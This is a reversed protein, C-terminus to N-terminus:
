ENMMQFEAGMQEAQERFRDIDEKDLLIPIRASAFNGSSGIKITELWAATEQPDVPMNPDEAGMQAMQQVQAQAMMQLQQLFQGGLQAQQEDPYALHWELMPQEGPMLLFGMGRTTALPGAMMAMGPDQRILEGIATGDFYILIDPNRSGVAPAFSRFSSDPAAMGTGTEFLTFANSAWQQDTSFTLIGDRPAALYGPEDGPVLVAENGEPLQIDHAALAEAVESRTFTGVLVGYTLQEGQPSQRAGIVVNQAKELFQVGIEAHEGGQERISAIMEERPFLAGISQPNNLAELDVAVVFQADKPLMAIPNAMKFQAMLVSPALLLAASLAVAALKRM